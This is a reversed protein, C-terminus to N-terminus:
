VRLRMKLLRDTIAQVDPAEDDFGFLWDLVAGAESLARLATTGDDCAVRVHFVGRGDRAFDWTTQAPLSRPLGALALLEITLHELLHPVETNRLEDVFRRGDDNNCRHRALGPLLQLAQEALGEVASTRLPVGDAVRVKAAICTEAIDVSEIRLVGM